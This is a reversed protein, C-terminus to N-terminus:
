KLKQELIRLNQQDVKFAINMGGINIVVTDLRGKSADILRNVTMLHNQLGDRTKGHKEEARGVVESIEMYPKKEHRGPSQKMMKNIRKGASQKVELFERDTRRIQGEIKEKTDRLRKATKIKAKMKGHVLVINKGKLGKVNGLIVQKKVPKKKVQIRSVPIRQLRGDLVEAQIRRIKLKPM